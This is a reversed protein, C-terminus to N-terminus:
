CFKTFVGHLHTSHTIYAICEIRGHELQYTIHHMIIYHELFDFNNLLRYIRDFVNLCMELFWQVMHIHAPCLLHAIKLLGTIAPRGKGGQLSDTSTQGRTVMHGLSTLKRTCKHTQALHLINRSFDNCPARPVMKLPLIQSIRYQSLSLSWSLVRHRASHAHAYKCYTHVLLHGIDILWSIQGKRSEEKHNHRVM